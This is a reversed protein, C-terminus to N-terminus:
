ERSETNSAGLRQSLASATRGAAGRHEAIYGAAADAAQERAPADTLWDALVRSLEEASRVEKAGKREMLEGAAVANAHLPGFSVPLRAAAPELVSHLGHRHFGGGVYSLSGVTYLQALVGVRDVLVVDADGVRGEREVDTLTVPNWGAQQFEARIQGLRRETPEHPALVVRLDPAAQRAASCAPVLVEEDPEWTSGAVLTPRPDAHFPRLFPANPDSVRARAAASDIGPDGSVVLCGERVGLSRLRNADQPAIAGVWALRRFSTRLLARAPWRGRGAEKPVTAGIMATAIGRRQASRSLTPWVETKTFVVLDPRLADLVREMPGPLDWPLYGTVDAPMRGAWAVASPSFYTYAIQVSPVAEQLAHMVARAQFGEGVSPAHFWVLPRTAERGGTSWEVLEEVAHRRGRIGRALKSEGGAFAPSIGRLTWTLGTYISELITV